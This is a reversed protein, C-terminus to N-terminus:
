CDRRQWVHLVGYYGRAGCVGGFFYVAFREPRSTDRSMPFVSAGANARPRMARSTLVAGMGVVTPLPSALHNTHAITPVLLGRALNGENRLM